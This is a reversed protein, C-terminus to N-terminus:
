VYQYSVRTLWEIQGALATPLAHLRLKIDAYNAKDTAKNGSNVAGSITGAVGSASKLACTDTGGIEEWASWATGDFISVEVIADSKSAVPGTNDGTLSKTTIFVNTMDSVATSGGRNNWILFEKPSSWDGADVIGADWSSQQATNLGDYWQVVPAGM